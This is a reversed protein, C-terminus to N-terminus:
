IIVSANNDSLKNVSIIVIIIVSLFSISVPELADLGICKDNRACCILIMRRRDVLMKIQM